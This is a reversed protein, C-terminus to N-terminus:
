TNKGTSLTTLNEDIKKLVEKATPKKGKRLLFFVAEYIWEGKESPLELINSVLEAIDVDGITVIEDLFADGNLGIESLQNNKWLINIYVELLGCVAKKSKGELHINKM